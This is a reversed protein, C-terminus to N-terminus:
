QGFYRMDKSTIPVCEFISGGKISVVQNRYEYVPKEAFESYNNLGIFFLALDLTLAFILISFAIPKRRIFVNLKDLM